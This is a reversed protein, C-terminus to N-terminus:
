RDEEKDPPVFSSGKGAGFVIVLLVVAASLLFYVIQVLGFQM